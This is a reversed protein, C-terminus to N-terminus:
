AHGGTPTSTDAPQAQASTQSMSSVLAPATTFGFHSLVGGIILDGSGQDIIGYKIGFVTAALVVAYSLLSLVTATTQSM